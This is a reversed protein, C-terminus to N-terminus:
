RHPDGTPDRRRPSENSPVNTDESGDLVLSSLKVFLISGAIVLIGILIALLVLRGRGKRELWAGLYASGLVTAVTILMAASSHLAGDSGEVNGTTLSLFGFFSFVIPGWVTVIALWWFSRLFYGFIVGVSVAIGVSLWLRTFLSEGAGYDGFFLAGQMLGVFLGAPVLIVRFLLLLKKM